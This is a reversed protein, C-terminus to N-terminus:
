AMYAKVHVNPDLTGEDSDVKPWNWKNPFQSQMVEFTFPHFGEMYAELEINLCPTLTVWFSLEQDVEWSAKM